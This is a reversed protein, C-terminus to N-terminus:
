HTTKPGQIELIRRWRKGDSDLQLMPVSAGRPSNFVKEGDKLAIAREIDTFPFQFILKFAFWFSSSSKSLKAHNNCGRTYLNLNLIPVHLFWIIIIIHKIMLAFLPYFLM